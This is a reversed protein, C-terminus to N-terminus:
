GFGFNTGDYVFRMGDWANVLSFGVLGNITAGSPPVISIPYNGAQGGRDMVLCDNHPLTLIAFGAANVFVRTTGDPIPFSGGTTVWLPPAPTAAEQLATIEDHAIQFNGRVTATEPSGAVPLTPDIMSPM